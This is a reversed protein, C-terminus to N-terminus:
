DLSSARYIVTVDTAAATVIQLGATMACNYVRSGAPTAAAAAAIVAIPTTTGGTTDDYVTVAGATGGNIVVAHLFAGANQSLDTTTATTIHSYSFQGQEVVLVDNTQDEGALLVIDKVDVHAAGGTGTVIFGRVTGQWEIEEGTEYNVYTKGLDASTDGLTSALSTQQATTIFTTGDTVKAGGNIVEIPEPQGTTTDKGKM